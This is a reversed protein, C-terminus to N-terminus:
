FIATDDGSEELLLRYMANNVRDGFTFIDAYIVSTSDGIPAEGTTFNIALTRAEYAASGEAAVAGMKILGAELGTTLTTIATGDGAVGAANTLDVDVITVATSTDVVASVDFNVYVYDAGVTLARFDAVTDPYTIQVTTTTHDVATGALTCLKIFTGCTM